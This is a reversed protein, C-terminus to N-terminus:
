SRRCATTARDAYNAPPSFGRPPTSSKWELGAHGRGKFNAKSQLSFPNVMSGRHSHGRIDAQTLQRMKGLSPTFTIGSTGVRVVSDTIVNHRVRFSLWTVAM